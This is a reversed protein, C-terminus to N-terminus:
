PFQGDASPTFTVDYKDTWVEKGDAVNLCRTVESNGERGFAYLKDGVLAPTSVGEGVKTQWKKTLDKPWAKPATFGTVHGNRTPGMWQPWDEGAASALWLFAPLAVLASTIGRKM